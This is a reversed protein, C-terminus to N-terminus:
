HGKREQDQKRNNIVLTSCVKFDLLGKLYDADIKLNCATPRAGKGPRM